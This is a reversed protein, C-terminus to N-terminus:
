RDLPPAIANRTVLHAQAPVPVEAPTVPRVLCLDHDQDLRRLVATQTDIDELPHDMNKPPRSLLAAEYSKRNGTSQALISKTILGTNLTVSARTHIALTRRKSIREKEPIMCKKRQWKEVTVINWTMADAREVEVAGVLILKEEM